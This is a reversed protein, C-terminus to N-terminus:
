CRGMRGGLVGNEFLPVFNEKKWLILVTQPRPDQFTLM